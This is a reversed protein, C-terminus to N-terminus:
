CFADASLRAWLNPEALGFAQPAARLMNKTEHCSQHVVQLNEYTTSGGLTYEIIHDGARRQDGEILESCLACRGGQEDLKKKKETQTFLRRENAKESLAKIFTDTHKILSKQFTANRSNVNLLKCLDNPNMQLIDKIFNNVDTFVRKFKSISEFWYGLRGLLILLPVEHSKDMFAKGDKKFAGREELEKLISRMTKLRQIFSDKKANTNDDIEKVGKGLLKESWKTVLDEMSGAAPLVEEESLALLKNLKVEINGRVSKKKPILPSEIWDAVSNELVEKQLITHTQIKTEYNNLPLGAKSLREWLMQLADSDKATEPDIVNISFTYKLLREQMDKPIEEFKKGELGKLPSTDWKITDRKGKTISYKGDIFDFIAECRHAGDFVDEISEDLDKITYIPGCTFGRLATDLMATKDMDSWCQERQKPGRTRFMLERSSNAWHRDRRNRLNIASVAPTTMGVLSRM